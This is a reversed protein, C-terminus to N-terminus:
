DQKIIPDENSLLNNLRWIETEQNYTSLVIKQGEPHISFGAIPRKSQWVKKPNKGDASLRWLVSGDNLKETFFIYNGDPSWDAKEIVNKVTFLKSANGGTTPVIYLQNESCFLLSENDPSRALTKNFKQNRLIIEEKGTAIERIVLQNNNLIYFSKQDAAWEVAAWNDRSSALLLESMEGSEVNITYVGGYYGKNLEIEKDYALTLITKGDPSWRPSDARSLDRLKREKGTERNLIYFPRNYWGPGSPGTLEKIYALSEGDPSWELSRISGLIPKGSEIKLEINVPDFPASFASFMRSFISYYYTGNNTFGMPSVQGLDTMVRQPKGAAKGNSVSVIWADWTGSRNSKFLIKNENPFWGLIRDNAPHDVLSVESKDILSLLHIDFNGNGKENPLDYAIFKNDSSVGINMWYPFNFTRLVQIDGNSVTIALIRCQPTKNRYSRAYITNGDPSWAVPYVDEGKNGYLIKAQHNNVDTIRIEYNSTSNMWSYAVQKNNPSVTSGITFQMPDEWTAEKTLLHTKGDSFERFGVNGTEYDMYTLFKGDPSPTGSNNTEPGTWVKESSLTKPRAEAKENKAKLKDHSLLNEMVWVGGPKEKGAYSSFSILDGDPHISISIFLNKKIRLNEAEGGTAPIRWLEWPMNNDSGTKKSFYIYKGDPSWVISIYGFDTEEFTHIVKESSDSTSLIRLIRKNEIQRSLLAMKKGDPSLAMSLNDESTKFLEKERGTELNKSFISHLDWNENRTAFYIHKNDSALSLSYIGEEIKLQIFPTIEGTAIDLVDTFSLLISKSDPFWIPPGTNKNYYYTKISGTSKNYICLTSQKRLHGRLSIYALYNGDPSWVPLWNNGKLPLPTATPPSTVKGTEPDMTVTFIDMWPSPKGFYFSGNNTSGLPGIFGINEYILNPDEMPTGENFSISWMDTTGTRNSAIYLDSGSQAWDLLYDHSPHSTLRVERNGDSSLVYIDNNHNGENPPSDYAIYQGDPSFKASLPGTKYLKKLPKYSDDGLSISGLEIQDNQEFQVLIHQGDPSWDETKLWTKSHKLRLLDVQEPNDVEIVRVEYNDNEWIYAIQKSDPSWIPNYPTGEDGEFNLDTQNSLRIEKETGIEKIVIDNPSTRYDIFAFFKGNPSPTGYFITGTADMIRKIVIEEPKVTKSLKTLRSLRSRAIAVESKQNPFSNVLRQYVKTAEERGLKEYCQGARLLAKAQLSEEADENEVIKMYIDIAENLKGEGEEKIMGKQFLQESSQSFAPTVIGLSFASILLITTFLTKM